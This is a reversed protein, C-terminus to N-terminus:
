IEDYELAYDSKCKRTRYIRTNPFLTRTQKIIENSFTSDAKCGLYIAALESSRIKWDEYLSGPAPTLPYWVRWEHEYRWHDSKTLVYRKYFNNLSFERLSLISEIWEEESLFPIPRKVYEVPSATSLANDEEPLSLLEFVLGTHDKAYHAWMLLNDRDESVCFMRLGPLVDKWWHDQYKQQSNLILDKLHAFTKKTVVEWRSRPFGDIPYRERAALIVQGWPNALDISPEEIGAALEEIRDLIKAPLAELDFELHIGAQVDFPDNFILPSSFRFTQNKLIALATDPAVYKFFSRNEPSQSNM